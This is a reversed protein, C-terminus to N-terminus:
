HGEESPVLYWQGGSSVWKEEQVSRSSVAGVGQVPMRLTYDIELHVVCVIDECSVGSVRADTWKVPRVLVTREYEEKKVLERYGPSLYEYAEGPTRAILHQWRAGAREAVIEEAKATSQVPASDPRVTASPGTGSCASLVVACLASGAAIVKRNRM